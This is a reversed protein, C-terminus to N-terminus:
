VLTSQSLLSFSRFPFSTSYISFVSIVSPHVTSPINSFPPARASIHAHHTNAVRHRETPTLLRSRCQRRRGRQSTQRDIGSRFAKLREEWPLSGNYWNTSNYIFLNWFYMLLYYNRKEQEQPTTVTELLHSALMEKHFDNM